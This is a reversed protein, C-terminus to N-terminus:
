EPGAAPPMALPETDMVLLAEMVSMFMVSEPVPTAGIVWLTINFQVGQV